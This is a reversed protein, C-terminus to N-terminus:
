GYNGGFGEFGGLDKVEVIQNEKCISPAGNAGARIGGQPSVSNLPVM